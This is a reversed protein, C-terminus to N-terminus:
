AQFTFYPHVNTFERFGPGSLVSSLQLFFKGKGDVVLVKSPTIGRGVGVRLCSFLLAFFSIVTMNADWVFAKNNYCVENQRSSKELSQKHSLKISNTKINVGPRFSIVTKMSPTAISFYM